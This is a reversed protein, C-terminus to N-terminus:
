WAARGALLVAALGVARDIYRRIIPNGTQLRPIMWGVSACCRMLTFVPVMEIDVPRTDRYAGILAEAIRPLGPEDLNQSLATGLDYLPFGFGSDDFDILAVGRPGVFVNERLVDAHILRLPQRLAHDGIREALLGRARRLLTAEDPTLAPHEWFRGWFPDEGVLGEADWFPRQFWDPLAMAETETQVRAVLRGLDAHRRQHEALTGDLPVGAAGLPEGEVWGVVSAVQNPGVTVVLSGDLSALPRAVAVGRDALAACWWLESRIAEESQYGVRHLRLAARGSPLAIEYVANERAKILRVVRGGFARAAAEASM